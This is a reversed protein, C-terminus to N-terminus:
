FMDGGEGYNGPGGESTQIPPYSGSSSKGPLTIGTDNEDKKIIISGSSGPNPYIKGIITEPTTSSCGTLTVTSADASMQISGVIGGPQEGHTTITGTYKCDTLTANDETGGVIGGVFGLNTTIDCSSTCNELKTDNSIFGAISGTQDSGTGDNITISGSVSINSISGGDVYGFLGNNTFSNTINLGSITPTSGDSKNGTFHGEFRYGTNGIPTWPEDNLNVDATLDYYKDKFDPNFLASNVLRSLNRLQEATSIQYPDSQTGSGGAFAPSLTQTVTYYMGAAIESGNLIKTHLMGNNDKVTLLIEKGAISISALNTPAVMMYATLSGNISIPNNTGLTLTISHIPKLNGLTMDGGVKKWDAVSIFVETNDLSSLHLEKVATVGPLTLAFKMMAGLRKFTFTPKQGKTYDASAGMFDYGALHDTSNDATQRQGSYSLVISSQNVMMQDNGYIAYLSKGNETNNPLVGIFEGTKSNEGETLSFSKFGSASIAKDTIDSWGDNGVYFVDNQAWTVAVTGNAPSFDYNVRTQPRDNQENETQQTAIITIQEGPEAPQPQTGEADTLESSCATAAVAILAILVTRYITSHKM